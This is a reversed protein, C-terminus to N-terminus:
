LIREETEANFLFVKNPKLKFSFKDSDPLAVDSDLICRVTPKTSSEHECVVSKDRGMVEIHDVNLTLVGKEDYIFGEPRIGVYLEQDSIIETTKEETVTGDESEHLKKVPVKVKKMVAQSGIYM